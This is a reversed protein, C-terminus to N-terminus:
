FTVSKDPLCLAATGEVNTGCTKLWRLLEDTAAELGARNAAGIPYYICGALQTTGPRLKTALSDKIPTVMPQSAPTQGAHLGCGCVLDHLDLEQGASNFVYHESEAGLRFEAEDTAALELDWVSIPVCYKLSVLNNADVPGNIRPFNGESAARMLYESAPKGRGTPKYEGNRLMDRSAKRIAEEEPVLTGGNRHDIWLELEEVLAPAAPGIQVGEVRVLGLALDDRSIRHHVTITM